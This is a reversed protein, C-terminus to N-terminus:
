EELTRSSERGRNRNEKTGLSEEGVAPGVPLDVLGPDDWSEDTFNM